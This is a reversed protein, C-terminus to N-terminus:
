RARRRTRRQTTGAEKAPATKEARRSARTTKAAPEDRAASEEKASSDPAATEAPDDEPSDEEPVVTADMTAWDVVKFVPFDIVGWKKHKYSDSGLSVIPVPTGPDEGMHDVVEQVLGDVANKLGLSTGSLFCQEREDEGNTCVLIFGRLPKWEATAETGTEPHKYSYVPLNSKVIPAEQMSAMEEGLLEGDGWAQYGHVFSGPNVAWLSGEEIDTSDAGYFYDGKVFKMFHGKGGTEDITAVAGMNQLGSLLDAPNTPLSSGAPALENQSM